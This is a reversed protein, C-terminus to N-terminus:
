PLSPTGTHMHMHTPNYLPSIIICANIFIWAFACRTFCCGARPTACSLSAYVVCCVCGNSSALSGGLAACHDVSNAKPRLKALELARFPRRHHQHM